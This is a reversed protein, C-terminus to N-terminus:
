AETYCVDSAWEEAPKGLFSEDINTLSFFSWSDEGVFTSLDLNPNDPMNPFSPKGFGTGHRKSCVKKEM